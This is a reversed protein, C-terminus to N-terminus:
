KTEESNEPTKTQGQERSSPLAGSQGPYTDLELRTIQRREHPRRALMWAQAKEETSFAFAWPYGVCRGLWVAGKNTDLLRFYGSALDKFVDLADDAEGGAQSVLEGLDEIAENVKSREIVTM